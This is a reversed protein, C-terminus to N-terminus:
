NYKAREGGILKPRTKAGTVFAEGIYKTEFRLPVAVHRLHMGILTNGIDIGAKAKSGINEVVVADKFYKMANAALAGGAKAHPIVAVEELQNREMSEKEMVLARNLHECCQIAISWQYQNAKEMLARLIQEATEQSSSTGIRKGVVESTSCGIVVLDGKDLNSLNQLEDLLKTLQEYVNNTKETM